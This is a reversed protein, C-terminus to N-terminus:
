FLFALVFVGGWWGCFVVGGFVVCFWVLVVAVDGVGMCFCGCGCVSSFFARCWVM